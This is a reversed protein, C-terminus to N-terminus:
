NLVSYPGRIVLKIQGIITFRIWHQNSLIRDPRSCESSFVRRSHSGLTRRYWGEVMASMKKYRSIAIERSRSYDDSERRLRLCAHSVCCRACKRGRSPIVSPTCVECWTQAVTMSTAPSGRSLPFSEFSLARLTRPVAPIDPKTRCSSMRM